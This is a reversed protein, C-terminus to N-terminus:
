TSVMYISAMYARIGDLQQETVEPAMPDTSTEFEQDLELDQILDTAM